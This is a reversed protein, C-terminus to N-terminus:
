LIRIRYDCCNSYICYYLNKDCTTNAPTKPLGGDQLNQLEHLYPASDMIFRCFREFRVTHHLYLGEFHTAIASDSNRENIRSFLKGSIQHNLINSTKNSNAGFGIFPPPIFKNYISFTVM